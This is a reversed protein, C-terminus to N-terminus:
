TLQEHLAALGSAFLVRHGYAHVGIVTWFSPEVSNVVSAGGSGGYPTACVLSIQSLDADFEWALADKYQLLAGYGKDLSVLWDELESTRASLSKCWKRKAGQLMCQKNLLAANWVVDNSSCLQASSGAFKTLGSFGDVCASGASSIDAEETTSDTASVHMPSVAGVDCTSSDFKRCLAVLDGRVAFLQPRESCYRKLKGLAQLHGSGWRLKSALVSLELEGGSQALIQTVMENAKNSNAAEAAQRRAEKKMRAKTMPNMKKWLKYDVMDASWTSVDVNEDVRCSSQLPLFPPAMHGTKEFHAILVSWKTPGARCVTCRYAPM